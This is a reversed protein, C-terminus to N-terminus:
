LGSEMAKLTSNFEGLGDIMKARLAKGAIMVGGQGFDSLVKAEAVGRGIVVAEVFKDGLDDIRTQLRSLVEDDVPKSRKGPSQSSIIEIERIGAMEDAASDDVIGCRVGISGVECTEEAVIMQAQSGLWYAASACLGDAYTWVKRSKDAALQRIYKALESVGDAEGGPSNIRLLLARDKSAAELGRWIADYTTGGSYEQIMNAHRFLAGEITLVSIQGHRRLTGGTGEVESGADETRWKSKRAEWAVRAQELAAADIKGRSWVGFMVRLWFPDIAMPGLLAAPIPKM